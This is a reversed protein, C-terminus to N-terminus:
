KNVKELFLRNMIRAGDKVAGLKTVNPRKKYNIPIERVKYGYKVAKAFMEAEIDFGDATLNLERPVHAKFGWMGTCVDTVNHGNPFFKNATYSLVKNGVWNVKTMAWREIDGLMRSGMIVDCYDSELAHLMALLHEAPYTEDADLMFLYDGSFHNFAYKLADGKGRGPQMLIKAGKERAIDCTKDKSHGDVVLIETDYGMKKFIETPLSEIVGGITEEEDLAALLISITKM